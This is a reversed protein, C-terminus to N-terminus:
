WAVGAGLIVPVDCQLRASLCHDLSKISSVRGIAVTGIIRAQSCCSLTSTVYGPPKTQMVLLISSFVM